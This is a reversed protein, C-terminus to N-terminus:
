ALPTVTPPSSRLLLAPCPPDGSIPVLLLHRPRLILLIVLPTSAFMLLTATTGHSSTIPHDTHTSDEMIRSGMQVQHHHLHELIWHRHQLLHTHVQLQLQLLLVHGPIYPGKETSNPSFHSHLSNWRGYRLIRFQVSRLHRPCQDLQLQEQHQRIVKFASLYPVKNSPM